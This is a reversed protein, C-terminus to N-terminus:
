LTKIKIEKLEIKANGGSHLQVGIVGKSPIESNTENYEATKIGNIFLEHKNGICRILYSNWGDKDIQGELTELKGSALKGRRHEDYIDGWYGKGIDAQYGVIKDDKVTSRYQIGSNILGSDSDGTLRFLCTFEFDGYELHSHLYTNKPIKQVGDGGIIESDVISWYKEHEAKVTKWNKLDVEFLQNTTDSKQAFCLISSLFIVSFFYSKTMRM